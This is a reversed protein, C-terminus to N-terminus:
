KGSGSANGVSPKVDPPSDGEAPPPPPAAAEPEKEPNVANIQRKERPPNRPKNRNDSNDSPRRRKNQGNDSRKPRKKNKNELEKFRRYMTCDKKLHGPDGCMFCPGKEKGDAGLANVNSEYPAPKASPNGAEKITYIAAEVDKAAKEAEAISKPFKEAVKEAIAPLLGRIFYRIYTEETDLSYVTGDNLQAGVMKALQPRAAMFTEKLRQLYTNVHENTNQKMQELVKNHYEVSKQTVFSTQLKHFLEALPPVAYVRNGTDLDLHWTKAEPDFGNLDDRTHLLKGADGIISAMLESRARAPKWKNTAAILTFDRRFVRWDAETVSKLTPAERKTRDKREEAKALSENMKKNAKILENLQRQQNAFQTQQQQLIQALVPDLDQGGRGLRM